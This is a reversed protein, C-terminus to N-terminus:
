DDRETTLTNTINEIAKWGAFAFIVILSTGYCMWHYEIMMKIVTFLYVSLFHTCGHQCNDLYNTEVKIAENM